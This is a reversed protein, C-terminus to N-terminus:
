EVEQQLWNLIIDKCALKQKGSLEMWACYNSAICVECESWRHLEALEEDSMSRIRDANTRIPKVCAHTTIEDWGGGAFEKGCRACIIPTNNKM